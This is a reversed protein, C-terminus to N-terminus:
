AKFKNSKFSLSVRDLKKLEQYFLDIQLYFYIIFAIKEYFLSIKNFM